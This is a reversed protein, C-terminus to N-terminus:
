QVEIAESSPFRMTMGFQELHKPRFRSPNIRPVPACECWKLAVSSLFPSLAPVPSRGLAKPGVCRPSPGCARQKEPDSPSEPHPRTM